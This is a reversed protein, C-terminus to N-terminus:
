GDSGDGATVDWEAWESAESSEGAMEQYAAGWPIVGDAGEAVRVLIGERREELELETGERLKYIRVLEQPIRIGRSNGIRILRAKMYNCYNSLSAQTLPEKRVAKPQPLSM